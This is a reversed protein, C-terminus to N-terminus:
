SLLVLSIGYMETRCTCQQLHLFPPSLMWSPACQSLFFSASQSILVLPAVVDGLPQTADLKHGAMAEVLRLDAEATRTWLDLQAIARSDALGADGALGVRKM